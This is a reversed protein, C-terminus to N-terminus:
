FCIDVVSDVFMVRLLIVIELLGRSIRFKISHGAGKDLYYYDFFIHKENGFAKQALKDHRNGPLM